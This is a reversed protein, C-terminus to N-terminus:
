YGEREDEGGLLGDGACDAKEGCGGLCEQKQLTGQPICSQEWSAGLEEGDQGMVSVGRCPCPHASSARWTPGMAQSPAARSLARSFACTGSHLMVLFPAENQPDRLDGRM